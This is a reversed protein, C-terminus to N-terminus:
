YFSFKKGEPNVANKYYKNKERIDLVKGITARCLNFANACATISEFKFTEGKDHRCRVPIRYNTRVPKNRHKIMLCNEKATGARLNEYRNNSRNDDLHMVQFNKPIYSNHRAQWIARHVKQMKRTGDKDSARTFVRDVPEDLILNRDLESLKIRSRYIIKQTEENLVKYWCKNCEDRLPRIVRM